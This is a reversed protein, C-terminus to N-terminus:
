LARDPSGSLDLDGVELPGRDRERVRPREPRGGRHRPQHGALARDDRDARDIVRRFEGQDAPLAVGLFGGLHGDRHLHQVFAALRRQGLRDDALDRVVQGLEETRDVFSDKTVIEGFVFPNEQRRLAM